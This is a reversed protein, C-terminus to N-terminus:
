TKDYICMNSGEADMTLVQLNKETQNDSLALSAAFFSTLSTRKKTARGSHPPLPAQGSLLEFSRLELFITVFNRGFFTVM